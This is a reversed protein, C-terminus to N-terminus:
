AEGGQREIEAKRTAMTLAHTTSNIGFSAFYHAANVIDSNTVPKRGFELASLQAPSCGLFTAMDMLTTGVVIRLARVLMGYPTMPNTWSPQEEPAADSMRQETPHAPARELEAIRELNRKRLDEATAIIRKNQERLFAITRDKKELEPDGALSQAARDAIAVDNAFSMLDDVDFSVFGPESDGHLEALRFVEDRFAFERNFAAREDPQAAQPCHKSSCTITASGGCETCVGDTRVYDHACEAREDNQKNENSM